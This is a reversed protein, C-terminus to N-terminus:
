TNRAAWDQAFQKAVRGSRSGRTLAWLLAEGRAAAIQTSNAGFDGLWHAAIHLYEDQSFPYFSLWLGFRESLSIKEEVAEGPHLEGDPTHQYGENDRMTEPLLHRRNSTAYVLVNSSTAAVSGDLVSKLAKYQTEGADFSMDDCYVIFKEARGQVLEVIDPLDILDDKDVEILRLGEPAFHQLVAKILSSKGTGRAGSLLVHNAPKGTVFFASNQLLKAKQEDVEHLDHLQPARVQAVAQLWKRGGSSRWRWAVAASWDPAAVAQPLSQALLQNTRTLETAITNLAKTIANLADSL